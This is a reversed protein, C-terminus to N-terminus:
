ISYTTLLNHSVTIHAATNLTVALHVEHHLANLGVYFLRAYYYKEKSGEQIVAVGFCDRNFKLIISLSDHSSFQGGKVCEFTYPPKQSCLARAFSLRSNNQLKACHEIELTIKTEFDCQPECRFWYVASVLYYNEPFQYQGAISAGTNITIQKTDPPLRNQQIHFTIGFGKWPFTEATNTVIKPIEGCFEVGQFGINNYYYQLLILPHYFSIILM